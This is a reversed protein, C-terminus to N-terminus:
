EAAEMEAKTRRKRKPAEEEEELNMDLQPGQVPVFGANLMFLNVDIGRNKAREILNNEDEQNFDTAKIFGRKPVGCLDNKPKWKM